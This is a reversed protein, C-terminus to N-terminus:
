APSDLRDFRTVCNHDIICKQAGQERGIIVGGHHDKIIYHCMIYYMNHLESEILHSDSQKYKLNCICNVAHNIGPM